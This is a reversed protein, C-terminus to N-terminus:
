VGERRDPGHLPPRGWGTGHLFHGPVLRQDGDGTSRARCLEDPRHEDVIELEETPDIASRARGDGDVTVEDGPLREEAVLRADRVGVDFVPRCDGEDARGYGRRPMMADAYV